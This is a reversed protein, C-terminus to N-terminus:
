FETERTFVAEVDDDTSHESGYSSITERQAAGSTISAGLLFNPVNAIAWLGGHTEESGLYQDWLAEAHANPEQSDGLTASREAQAAAGIANINRLIRLADNVIYIKCGADVGNAVNALTLTTSVATLYTFQNIRVGVALGNLYVSDGVAFGTVASPTVVKASGADIGLAVTALTEHLNDIDYGATSAVSRMEDAINDMFDLVQTSTPKTSGSYTPRSQNFPFRAM